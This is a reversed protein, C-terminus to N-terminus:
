DSLILPSLRTSDTPDRDPLALQGKLIGAGWTPLVRGQQVLDLKVEHVLDLKVKHVKSRAPIPTTPSEIMKVKRVLATKHITGSM